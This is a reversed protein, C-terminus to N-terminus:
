TLQEREKEKTQMSSPLQRITVIQILRSFTYVQAQHNMKVKYGTQQLFDLLLVSESERKRNVAHVREEYDEGNL